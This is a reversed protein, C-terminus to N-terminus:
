CGPIRAGHCEAIARPSQCQAIASCLHTLRPRCQDSTPAPWPGPRDLRCRPRGRRRSPIASPRRTQTLRGRRWAFSSNELMRVCPMMIRNGGGLRLSRPSTARSSSEDDDHDVGWPPREVKPVPPLLWAPAADADQPDVAAALRLEADSREIECPLLRRRRQAPAGMGARRHRGPGRGPRRHREAAAHRPRRHCDHHVGDPAERPTMQPGAASRACTLRRRRTPRSPSPTCAVAWTMIPARRGHDDVLARQGM